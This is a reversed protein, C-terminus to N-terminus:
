VLFLSLFPILRAFQRVCKCTCEHRWYTKFIERSSTPLSVGVLYDVVTRALKQEKEKLTAQLKVVEESSIADQMIGCAM